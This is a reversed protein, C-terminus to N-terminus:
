WIERMRALHLGYGLPIFILGLFVGIYLASMLSSTVTLAWAFLFISVVDMIVFVLLYAYYQMLLHVRADGSPVQGAEFTALKMPTKNRPAFLWPIILVPLAFVLGFAATFLVLIFAGPM